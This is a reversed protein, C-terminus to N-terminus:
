ANRAGHRHVRDDHVRAGGAVDELVVRVALRAPEDAAHVVAFPGGPVEPWLADIQTLRSRQFDGILYSDFEYTTEVSGSVVVFAVPPVPLQLEAPSQPVTVVAVILFM